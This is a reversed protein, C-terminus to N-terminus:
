RGEQLYFSTFIEVYVYQEAFDFSFTLMYNTAETLKFLLLAM